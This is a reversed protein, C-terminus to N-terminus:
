SGTAKGTGPIVAKPRISLNHNALHRRPDGYHMDARVFRAGGRQLRHDGAVFRVENVLPKEIRGDTPDTVTVV